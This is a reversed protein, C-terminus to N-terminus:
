IGYYRGSANMEERKIEFKKATCPTLSLNVINYPYIGM